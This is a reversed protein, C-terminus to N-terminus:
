VPLALISCGRPTPMWGAQPRQGPPVLPVARASRRPASMTSQQARSPPVAAAQGQDLLEMMRAHAADRATYVVGSLLVTDGAQLPALDAKSLPTQLIYQM